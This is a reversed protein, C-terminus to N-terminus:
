SNSSRKRATHIVRLIQIQEGKVRYVIIYPLSPVILERTKPIRGARGKAPHEVLTEAIAILGLAVERSAPPNDKHIYSKIQSLDAVAKKTWQLKM